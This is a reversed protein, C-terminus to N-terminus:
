SSPGWFCLPKGGLREMRWWGVWLPRRFWPLQPQWLLRLWCLQWLLLSGVLQEVWWVLPWVVLRSLWWALVEWHGTCASWAPPHIVTKMKQRSTLPIHAANWMMLNSWMKMMMNLSRPKRRQFDKVIMSAQTWLSKWTERWTRKVGKKAKMWQSWRPIWCQSQIWLHPSSRTLLCRRQLSHSWVLLMWSALPKPTSTWRTLPLQSKVVMTEMMWKLRLHCMPLQMTVEMEVKPVKLLPIEGNEGSSPRSWPRANKGKKVQWLM